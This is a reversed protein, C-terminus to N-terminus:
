DTLDFDKTNSGAALTVTLGSKGPDNYKAPIKVYVTEESEPSGEPKPSAEVKAGAPPKPAGGAKGGYMAARPDQGGKYEPMKTKPNISETEVTVVLEGAPLDVGSYTGDARIACTYAGADKTHFTLSGGTVKNGKYTVTGSVKAPANPNKAGCGIAFAAVLPLLLFLRNKFIM